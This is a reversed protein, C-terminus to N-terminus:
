VLHCCWLRYRAFDQLLHEFCPVHWRFSVLQTVLILSSCPQSASSAPSVFASRENAPKLLKSSTDRLPIRVLWRSFVGWHHRAKPAQIITLVMDNTGPADSHCRRYRYQNRRYLRLAYQFSYLSWRSNDQGVCFCDAHMSLCLHFLCHDLLLRQFIWSYLSCNLVRSQYQWVGTPVPLADLM